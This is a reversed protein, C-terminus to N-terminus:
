DTSGCCYKYKRGSGCPCPENRGVRRRTERHPNQAKFCAWMEMEYITDEIFTCGRRARLNELVKAKGLALREKVWDLDIYSEDVLGEEFAVKIDEIVEGPYLDTSYSVLCDWVHSPERAIKARFLSLCYSLVEERSHVGCAVLTLMGKLAAGRVYENASENEILKEMLSMDGHSVSALIRGLDETVVDGTVDLTIEGPISFFGVILPYAAKERFQALLYLAYIHAMYAETGCLRHINRRAYELISLLEPTIQECKAIAELVAKRPFFGRNFELERVIEQIKM